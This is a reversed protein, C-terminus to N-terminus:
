QSLIMHMGSVYFTKLLVITINMNQEVQKNSVASLHNQDQLMQMEFMPGKKSNSPANSAFMKFSLIVM